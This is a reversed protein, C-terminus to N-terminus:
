GKEKALTEALQRIHIEPMNVECVTRVWDGPLGTEGRIAGCWAGVTTATTDCDRGCAVALPIAIEPNGDGHVFAAVALPVQECLLASTYVDDSDELYPLPEPLEYSDFPPQTGVLVSKYLRHILDSTGGAQNAVHIGRELFKRSLPGCYRLLADVVSETSSNEAMGAAVGAQVAALLDQELPDKWITCMRRAENFAEEPEGAFLIGVPTWWGVGGGPTHVLGGEQASVEGRKIRELATVAPRWWMTFDANALLWRAFTEPSRPPRSQVYYRTLDGRIFTDDTVAGANTRLAYGATPAKLLSYEGNYPLFGTIEGALRKIRGAHSCEVPGGMADGIAAGIYAGLTKNKNVM